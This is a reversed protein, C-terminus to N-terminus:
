PAQGDCPEQEFEEHVERLRKDLEDEAHRAINRNIRAKAPDASRLRKVPRAVQAQGGEDDSDGWWTPYVVRNISGSRPREPM